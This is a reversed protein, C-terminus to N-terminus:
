IDGFDYNQSCWYYVPTSVAKTEEVEEEEKGFDDYKPKKKESEDTIFLNQEQETNM